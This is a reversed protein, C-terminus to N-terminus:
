RIRRSVLRNATIELRGERALQNLYPVIERALERASATSNININGVTTSNSVGPPSVTVREGPTARFAVTQSDRGGTGGVRFSGGDGFESIKSGIIAGFLSGLPGGVATGLLQIFAKQALMDAIDAVVDRLKKGQRIGEAITSVFGVEILSNLAQQAGSIESIVSPMEALQMKTEMVPEPMEVFSDRILSSDGKLRSLLPAGELIVAIYDALEKNIDKWATKIREVPEVTEITEVKQQKIETTVQRANEIVQSTGLGLWDGIKANAAVAAEHLISVLKPLGENKSLENARTLISTLGDSASTLAPALTISLETALSGASIELRHMADNADAAKKTMDESYSKGLERAKQRLQEIGASGSKLIQLFAVGESDFLKFALRVKEQESEVNSLADALEPLIEEMTRIRGNVDTAQIGLAEIAEKAEGKGATAFEALRRTARQLGMNLTQIKVGSQEAVFQMESLFETSEGLRLSLKGVADVAALSEKVMTALGMGAIATGVVAIAPGLRSFSSTLRGTSQTGQQELKKISQQGSKTLSEIERKADKTVVKTELILAM